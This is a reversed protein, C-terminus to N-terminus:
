AGYEVVVGSTCEAFSGVGQLYMRSNGVVGDYAPDPVDPVHVAPWSSALHAAGSGGPPGDLVTSGEPFLYDLEELLEGIHRENADIQARAYAGDTVALQRNQARLDNIREGISDVISRTEDSMGGVFGLILVTGLPVHPFIMPVPVFVFAAPVLVALAVSAKKSIRPM